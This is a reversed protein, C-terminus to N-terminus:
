VRPPSIYPIAERGFRRYVAFDKADLTVITADRWLESMRVLCADALSVKRGHYAGIIRALDPAQDALTFPILLEGAEVMEVLPRPTRLFHAAETLVAECTYLPWPLVSLTEVAWRRLAPTENADLFAVLPGTDLLYKM